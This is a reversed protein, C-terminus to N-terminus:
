GAYNSVSSYGVRAAYEQPWIVTRWTIAATFGPYWREIRDLISEIAKDGHQASHPCSFFITAQLPKKRPLPRLNEPVVLELSPDTCVDGACLAAIQQPVDQSLFSFTHVGSPLLASPALAM